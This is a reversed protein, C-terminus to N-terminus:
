DSSLARVQGEGDKAASLLFSRAPSNSDLSTEIFQSLRDASFQGRVTATQRLLRGFLLRAERTAVAKHILKLSGELVDALVPESSKVEADDKTADDKNQKAAEADAMDVDATM